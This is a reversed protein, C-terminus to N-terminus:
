CLPLQAIHPIDKFKGQCLTMCLAWAIEKAKELRTVHRGPQM